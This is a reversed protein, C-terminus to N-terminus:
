SKTIMAKVLVSLGSLMFLIIIILRMTKESVKKDVKSGAIFGLIVGPAGFLALKIIEFNMVGTIIYVIIRFTNELFFIFTVNGKFASKSKMTREIYAVFFLNIGFLGATVGSFFSVIIMVLMNSKVPKSTDRTLMEIGILMILVGLIAKLVWSSAYKLLLTGPIVGVLISIAMPIIETFMISKRNKWATYVNLPWGYCLNMPSILANDLKMALLPNTILPDGFGAVGKIFFGLFTIVFVFLASKVTFEM